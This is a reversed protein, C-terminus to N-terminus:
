TKIRNENNERKKAIVETLHRECIVVEEMDAQFVICPAMIEKEWEARIKKAKHLKEQSFGGVWNWNEMIGVLKPQLLSEDKRCLDCIRVDWFVQDIM